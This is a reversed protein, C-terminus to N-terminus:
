KFHKQILARVDDPGLRGELNGDGCLNRPMVYKDNPDTQMSHFKSEILEKRWNDPKDDIGREAEITRALRHCALILSAIGAATATAVSSGTAKADANLYELEGITIDRGNLRYGPGHRQSFDLPNGYRDSATIPITRGHYKNLSSSDLTENRGEDMTSCIMVVHSSDANNVATLLHNEDDDEGRRLGLSLSIIDVDNMHAWKIAQFFANAYFNLEFHDISVESVANMTLQVKPACVQGIFLECCPDLSSILCAMQTGHGDSGPLFWQSAHKDKFVFSKAGKIRQSARNQLSRATPDSAFMFGDDIIAVKTPKLPFRTKTHNFLDWYRDVFRALSSIPM